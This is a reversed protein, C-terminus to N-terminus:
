APQSKMWAWVSNGLQSLQTPSRSSQRPGKLKGTKVGPGMPLLPSVPFFEYYGYSITHHHMVCLKLLKCVYLENCSKSYSCVCTLPLRYCMGSSQCSGHKTKCMARVAHHKTSSQVACYKVCCCM